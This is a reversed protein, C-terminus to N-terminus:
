TAIALEITVRDGAAVQEARRIEKKIPLIFTKRRSDPFLSTSWTSTGLTVHVSISGFGGRRSVSDEIDDTIDEPLAIFHWPSDEKWLFIESTFRFKQGTM